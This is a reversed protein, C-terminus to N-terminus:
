LHLIFNVIIICFANMGLLIFESHTYNKDAPDQGDVGLECSHAGIVSIQM